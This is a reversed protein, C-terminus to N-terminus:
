GGVPLCVRDRVKVNAKIEQGFPPNKNAMLELEYAQARQVDQICTLFPASRHQPTM